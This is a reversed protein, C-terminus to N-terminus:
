PIFQINFRAPVRTEVKTGNLTQGFFKLELNLLIAESGTEPDVAGNQPLLNSLPPNVFEEQTMITLDDYIIVGNPPVTGFIRRETPQPVQTGLDARNFGVEYVEMETNMLPSVPQVQNVAISAVTLEGVSLVGRNNAIVESVSVVVPLGDFDTVSLYVGGSDTKSLNGSTPCGLASVAVVAVTVVSWIRAKM